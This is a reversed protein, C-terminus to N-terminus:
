MEGVTARMERYQELGMRIADHARRVRDAKYKGEQEWTLTASTKATTVAPSLLDEPCWEVLLVATEQATLGFEHGFDQAAQRAHSPIDTPNVGLRALAANVRVVFVMRGLM